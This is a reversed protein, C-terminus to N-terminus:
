RYRRSIGKLVVTPATEWCERDERAGQPRTARITPRELAGSERVIGPGVILQMNGRGVVRGPCSLAVGCWWEVNWGLRSKSWYGIALGGVSQMAAM